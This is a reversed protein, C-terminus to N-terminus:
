LKKADASIAQIIEDYIVHFFSREKSKSTHLLLKWDPSLSRYSHFVFSRAIDSVGRYNVQCLTVYPEDAVCRSIDAYLGVAGVNIADSYLDSDCFCRRLLGRYTSKRLLSPFYMESRVERTQTETM